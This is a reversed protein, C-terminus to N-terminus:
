NPRSSSAVLRVAARPRREAWAIAALGALLLAASVYCAACHPLAGVGCIVGYAQTMAHMHAWAGLGSLASGLLILGGAARLRRVSDQPM